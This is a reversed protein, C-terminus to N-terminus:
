VLSPKATYPPPPASDARLEKWKHGLKRVKDVIEANWLSGVALLAFGTYTVGFSMIMGLATLCTFHFGCGEKYWGVENTWYYYVSDDASHIFDMDGLVHRLPDAMIFVSAVMTLVLPGKRHWWSGFRNRSEYGLFICIGVCIALNTFFSIYHSATRSAATVGM